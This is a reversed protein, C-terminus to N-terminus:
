GIADPVSARPPDSLRNDAYDYREKTEVVRQIPGSAAVDPGKRVLTLNQLGADDMSGSGGGVATAERGVWQQLWDQFQGLVVDQSLTTEVLRRGNASMTARMEPSDCLTVLARALAESDDPGVVLGCNADTIVRHLDTGVDACVVIPRGSGLLNNIKSPLVIDSVARRQPVISIDSTALLESLDSIAQLPRFQVNELARRRAHEMLNRKEGGDGVIVFVIDKRDRLREAADLVSCLGQKVGLNGAYLVVFRDGLEWSKRFRTERSQPKVVNDDAWNRFLVLKRPDVGKAEIKRLMGPSIASVKDAWRYTWRELAFLARTAFGRRMMGLEVAADPQLDQVHFLVKSGKIWALAAVPLGLFLPPSVIITVDTKPGMLYSFTANMVFSLEHLIRRLVTPKTPVYLYNRRVRVGEEMHERFRTRRDSGAKAWMPYYPFGTHVVVRHGAAALYRAMGTSYVGIGTIEPAYNISVISVSPRAATGADVPRHRSGSRALRSVDAMGHPGEPYRATSSREPAASMVGINPTGTKM